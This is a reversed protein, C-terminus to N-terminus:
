LYFEISKISDWKFSRWENKEVDFVAQSTTSKKREVKNEDKESPHKEPIIDKKLTCKMDRITGDSKKFSVTIVEEKLLNLLWKKGDEDDFVNKM